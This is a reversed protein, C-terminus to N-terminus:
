PERLSESFSRTIPNLIYSAISRSGVKIEANLTMGRILRIGEPLNYLKTSLLEVRGTHVAGVAPKDKSNSANGEKSGATEGAGGFSEQSIFRLRGELMGHRQYPFADIKIVVKDGVKVYGIDRSQISIEAVFVADSPVISILLEAGQLIAGASRKAVDLVVGDAPATLVEFDTIRKAKTVSEDVKALETRVSVLSDLVQRAWDDMFTQREAKKSLLNHQLEALHNVSAQFDQEARISSSQSEQYQLHTGTGSKALDRRKGEVDRNIAMLKEQHTRNDETTRISAQLGQIEEDFMHLRSKYQSRRQRLLTAQLQEDTNSNADSVFETNNMESELRHIQALLAQQQVLLSALDARAFTPDFTALVQGKTVVDGAKVKIERIIARDVPQLQIPPTDTTLQGAGVVVIDTNAVSAIVIVAIFMAMILYYVGMMVVPPDVETVPGIGTQFPIAEATVKQKIRRLPIKTIFSAM